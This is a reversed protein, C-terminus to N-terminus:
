WSAGQCGGLMEEWRIRVMETALICVTWLPLNQTLKMGFNLVTYLKTISQLPDDHMAFPVGEKRRGSSSLPEKYCLYSYYFYYNIIIILLYPCLQSRRGLLHNIKKGRPICNILPLLTQSGRGDKQPGDLSLVLRNCATTGM